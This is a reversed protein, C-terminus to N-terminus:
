KMLERLTKEFKERDFGKLIAEDNGIVILPVSRAQYKESFIAMAEESKEVDV